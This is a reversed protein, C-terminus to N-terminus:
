IHGFFTLNLMNFCCVPYKNWQGTKTKYELLFRQVYCKVSTGNSYVDVDGGDMELHTLQIPKPFSLSFWNSSHETTGGVWPKDSLGMINEKGYNSLSSSVVITSSPLALHQCDLCLIYTTLLPSVINVDNASCPKELGHDHYWSIVIPVHYSRIIYVNQKLQFM